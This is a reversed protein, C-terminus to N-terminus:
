QTQQLLANKSAVFCNKEKLDEIAILAQELFIDGEVIHHLSQQTRSLEAQDANISEKASKGKKQM